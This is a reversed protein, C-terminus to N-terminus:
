VEKIEIGHIWKMLKRKIVYEPTRMGKTDEVVFAGDKSYTFDAIYNVARETLQRVGKKDVRPTSLKQAPILEFRVQKKLDAIAGSEELFKLYMYRKYEKRSDFTGDTKTAVKRNRYKNM